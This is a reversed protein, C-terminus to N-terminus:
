LLYSWVVLLASNLSPQARCSHGSWFTPMLQSDCLYTWLVNEDRPSEALGIFKGWIRGTNKVSFFFFFSLNSIQGGCWVSLLLITEDMVGTLFISEMLLYKEWCFAADGGQM